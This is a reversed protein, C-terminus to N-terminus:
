NIKHIESGRSKPRHSDPPGANHTERFDTLYKMGQPEGVLNVLSSIGPLNLITGIVPVRRLFNVAVPLFGSFLVFFGYMEIIMGVMPWGLLVIVIGGFFFGTGRLKHPQFFFRFTRELGIVFALGCIFLINGIALLGKDFFLMVGLFLFAIGFGALGVGILMVWYLSVCKELVLTISYFVIKVRFEFKATKWTQTM